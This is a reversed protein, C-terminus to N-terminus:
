GPGLRVVDVYDGRDAGVGDPLFALANGAALSGLAHSAQSGASRIHLRGDGATTAVVRVIHVKGDARRRFPEDALAAVTERMPERHGALVRIAPRGFLEFSVAASAPNGPLGFVPRGRLLGWALPKGPKMAVDWSRAPGFRSFVEHVFDFDGVSVGGTVLVADCRDLADGLTAAIADPDDAASGLDVPIAGADAVLGTLLPRNSDYIQGPRLPAPPEVLEDGTSMVGVTPRRHVTVTRLGVSALVGLCAPTLEIGATLVVQGARLDSGAFRVNEDVGVVAEVLVASVGDITGGKVTGGDITRSKLTTTREVMVVADAGPPMPAGTMIRIAEGPGVATTPATGAPLLGVVTLRVPHDATAGGTDAARVAFGDMATNAFPPVDATAEVPV